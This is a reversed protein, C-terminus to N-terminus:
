GKIFGSVEKIGAKKRKSDKSSLEEIVNFITRWSQKHAWSLDIQLKICAATM